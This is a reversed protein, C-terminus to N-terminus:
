FGGFNKSGPGIGGHATSVAVSAFIRSPSAFVKRVGGLDDNGLAIEETSWASWIKIRSSPRSAPHPVWSSRKFCLEM